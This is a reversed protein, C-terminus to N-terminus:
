RETPHNAHYVGLIAKMYAEEATNPIYNCEKVSKLLAQQIERDTALNMERVRAVIEDLMTIGTLVGNVPVMRIKRVADAQCLPIDKNMKLDGNFMGEHILYQDPAIM